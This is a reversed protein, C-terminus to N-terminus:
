VKYQYITKLENQELYIENLKLLFEEQKELDKCYEKKINERIDEKVKELFGQINDVFQGLSTFGSEPLSGSDYLSMLNLHKSATAKDKVNLHKLSYDLVNKLLYLIQLDTPEVFQTALSHGAIAMDVEAVFTAKKTYIPPPNKDQTTGLIVLELRSTRLIVGPVDALFSVKVKDTLPSLINILFMANLWIKNKDLGEPLPSAFPDVYTGFGKGGLHRPLTTLRLKNSEYNLRVLHSYPQGKVGFRNPSTVKNFAVELEPASFYATTRPDVQLYPQSVEDSNLLPFEIIREVLDEGDDVIWVGGPSQCISLPSKWQTALLVAKPNLDFVGDELDPTVDIKGWGHPATANITAGWDKQAVYQLTGKNLVLAALGRMLVAEKGTLFVIGANPTLPDFYKPIQFDEIIKLNVESTSGTETSFRIKGPELDVTVGEYHLSPLKSLGQFLENESISGFYFSSEQEIHMKTMVSIDGTVCRSTFEWNDMYFHIESDAGFGELEERLFLSGFSKVNMKLTLKM